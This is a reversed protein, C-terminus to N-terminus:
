PAQTGHPSVQVINSRTAFPLPWTKAIVQLCIPQPPHNFDIPRSKDVESSGPLWLWTTDNVRVEYVFMGDEPIELNEKSVKYDALHRSRYLLWPTASLLGKNRENCFFLEAVVDPGGSELPLLNTRTAILIETGPVRPAVSPWHKDQIPGEIPRTGLFRITDIESPWAPTIWMTASMALALTKLRRLM